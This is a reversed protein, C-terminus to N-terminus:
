ESVITYIVLRIADSILRSRGFLRLAAFTENLVRWFGTGWSPEKTPECFKPTPEDFQAYTAERVAPV